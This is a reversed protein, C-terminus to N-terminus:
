SLIWRIKEIDAELDALVYADWADKDSQMLANVALYGDDWPARGAIPHLHEIIVDPRYRLIGTKQGLEKWYNDLWMHKMNPPVMYGLTEIIDSTMAVATPLNEGQILDNGYVIGTQMKQLETLFEADWGKTRPRHDDGMFGIAFPSSACWLLMNCAFNLAESLRTYPPNSYDPGTLQVVTEPNWESKACGIVDNYAGRSPDDSDVVIM